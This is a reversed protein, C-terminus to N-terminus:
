TGTLLLSLEDLNLVGNLVTHKFIDFPRLHKEQLLGGEESCQIGKRVRM